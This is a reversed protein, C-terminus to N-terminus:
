PRDGVRRPRGAPPVSQQQPAPTPTVTPRPLSKVTRQLSPQGAGTQQQQQQSDGAAADTGAESVVFADQEAEEEAKGEDSLLEAKRPDIKPRPALMDNALGAPVSGPTPGFRHRLRQYVRGAVESAYSGRAGSGALIVAVALQPDHVPAYSTFLGVWTPQPGRDICSGTKGAITQAPDYARKATGYNVAGIMGPVIRRVTEQPIDLERKVERRFRVNEEPTRPLHPVLLHGGNALASTMNALQLATVEIDDGHSSMRNLAFGQKFVPLRGPNEFPHNIGTPQGLGLKRAYDMMKDFGVQGGVRQFYPNNSFALSDTLDLSFSSTGINVTQVPDIVSESLGAIATVIKTTSCPKFGRRIGWGQNVVTFVQGTKPSMVVVTGAKDGLAEVAARRVELDEGTTEDKLINAHAEDKLAQDAARQRAIAIARAIAIQRAREAAERRRREAERRAEAIRERKSMKRPDKARANKEAREEARREKRSRRDARENKAGRRDNKEARSGRRNDAARERKSARTEKKSSKQAAARKDRASPKAAAAKAAPKKKAAAAAAPTAAFLFFASVALALLRPSPFKLTM